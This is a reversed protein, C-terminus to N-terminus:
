NEQDGTEKAVKTAQSKINGKVKRPTEADRHHDKPKKMRFHGLM